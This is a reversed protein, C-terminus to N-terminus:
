TSIWLHSWIDGSHGNKLVLPRPPHTKASEEGGYKEDEVVKDWGITTKHSLFVNLFRLFCAYKLPFRNEM